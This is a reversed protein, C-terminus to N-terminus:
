LLPMTKIPRLSAKRENWENIRHQDSEFRDRTQLGVCVTTWEEQLQRQKVVVPDIKPKLKAALEEERKRMFSPVFFGGSAEKDESEEIAGKFGGPVFGEEDEEEEEGEEEHDQFFTVLRPSPRAGVSCKKRRGSQLGGESPVRRPSSSYSRSHNSVASPIKSLDQKSHNNAGLASEFLSKSHQSLKHSEMSFKATDTATAPTEAFKGRAGTNIDATFKDGGDGGGRGGLGGAQLNRSLHLQKTMSDPLMVAPAM